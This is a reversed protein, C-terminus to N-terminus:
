SHWQRDARGQGHELDASSHAARSLLDLHRLPTHLFGAPDAPAVVAALGRACSRRCMRSNLTARSSSAVPQVQDADALIHAVGTASWRQRQVSQTHGCDERCSYPGGAGSGSSLAASRGHPAHSGHLHSRAGGSSPGCFSWPRGRLRETKRVQPVQWHSFLWEVRQLQRADPSLVFTGRRGDLPLTGSSSYVAM